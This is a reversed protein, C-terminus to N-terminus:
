EQENNGDTTREEITRPTPLAKNQRWRLTVVTGGEAPSDIKLDSDPGKCFTLRSQVNKLGIRHGSQGSSLMKRLEKLKDPAIGNGNDTVTLYVWGEEEWARVTAKLGEQPHGGYQCANEILPQLTFQPVPEELLADPVQNELSFHNAYRLGMLNTFHSLHELEERLPWQVRRSRLVPRLMEGLEILMDSVEEAGMFSAQWRIATISNFIMHPSIISQLDNIELEVKEREMRRITDMKQNLSISARDLERGMNELEETRFSADAMPTLEGQGVRTIGEKLKNFSRMVRKLWILYFAFGVALLVGAVSIVLGQLRRIMQEHETMSVERALTWGSAAVPMTFVCWSVNQGNKLIKGNNEPSLLMHPDLGSEEGRRFFEEGEATFLHIASQGDDPLSFINAFATDDMLMLTFCEGSQVSSNRWAAIMVSEPLKANEFGYVEPGSLPGIWATQGSPVSLVQHIVAEPLLAQAPDDKFVNSIPLAGFLSGDTRMFLLGYVARQRNIEERLVDRCNMRARILEADNPFSRRAYAAVSDRLIVGRVSDIAENVTQALERTMAEFRASNKESEQRIIVRTYTRTIMVPLMAALLLTLVLVPLLIHFRLSRFLRKM